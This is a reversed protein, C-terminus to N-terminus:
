PDFLSKTRISRRGFSVPWISCYGSRPTVSRYEATDYHNNKM